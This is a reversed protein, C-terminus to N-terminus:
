QNRNDLQLRTKILVGINIQHSKLSL